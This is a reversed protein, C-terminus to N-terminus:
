TIQKWGTNGTGEAKIYRDNTVPDSSITGPNAEQVGEPSGVLTVTPVGDSISAAAGSISLAAAEEGGKGLFVWLKFLWQYVEFLYADIAADGTRPPRPPRGLADAM